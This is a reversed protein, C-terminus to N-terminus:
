EPLRRLTLKVVRDESRLVIVNQDVSEIVLPLASQIIDYGVLRNFQSSFARFLRGVQGTVGLGVFVTGDEVFWLPVSMNTGSKYDVHVYTGDDRFEYSGFPQAQADRMVSWVGVFRPDRQPWNWWSVMSVLVLVFAVILRRRRPRVPKAQAHDM